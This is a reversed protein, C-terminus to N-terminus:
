LGDGTEGPFTLRWFNEPTDTPVHKARHRTCAQFTRHDYGKLAKYLKECEECDFGELRARDDKKRIVEKVKRGPTTNSPQKTRKTRHASVFGSPHVPDLKLDFSRRKPQFRNTTPSDDQLLERKLTKQKGSISKTKELKTSTTRHHSPTLKLPPSLVDSNLPDASQPPLKSGHNPCDSVFKQLSENLFIRTQSEAAPDDTMIKKTASNGSNEKETTANSAARHKEDEENLFDLIRESWLERLESEERYLETIDAIKKRLVKVEIFDYPETATYNISFVIYM